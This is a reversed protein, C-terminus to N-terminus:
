VLRSPPVRQIPPPSDPGGELLERVPLRQRRPADGETMVSPRLVHWRDLASSQWGDITRVGAAKSKRQAKPMTQRVIQPTRPQAFRGRATPALPPSAARHQKTIPLRKHQRAAFKVPRPAVAGSMTKSVGESKGTRVAPRSQSQQVLSKRARQHPHVHSAAVNSASKRKAAQAIRADTTFVPERDRAMREVRVAARQAASDDDTNESAGVDAALEQSNKAREPQDSLESIAPMLLFAHQPVDTTVDTSSPARALVAVGARVAASRALQFESGFEAAVAAGLGGASPTTARTVPMAFVAALDVGSDRWRPTVSAIATSAAGLSATGPAGMAVMVNLARHAEDLSAFAGIPGPVPEYVRRKRYRAEASTPAKLVRMRLKGVGRVGLKQAAAKSLDLTRNGWYPGANNIRLIVSQNNTPSWVLVITGDPLNPSAANDPREPHFVEGSSTLGCPNYRDKKCQDYFSATVNLDRGMLAETEAITKVRHCTKYFCYTKGPTKALADGGTALMASLFVGAVAALRGAAIAVRWALRAAVPRRELAFLGFDHM